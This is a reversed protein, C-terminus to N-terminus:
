PPRLFLQTFFYTNGARWIGIGTRNYREDLINERHGPSRMWGEIAALVPDPTGENLGINEAAARVPIGAARLREFPGHGQPDEHAFFGEDAMRNSHERAIRDLDADRELAGLGHERRVANIRAHLVREMERIEPREGQAASGPQVPGCGLLLVMALALGVGGNM